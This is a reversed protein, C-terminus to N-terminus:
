FFVFNSILPTLDFSAGAVLGSSGSGGLSPGLVQRGIIASIGKYNGAIGLVANNVTSANAAQGFNEEFVLGAGRNLASIGGSTVIDMWGVEVGLGANPLIMWGNATDVFQAPGVFTPNVGWGTKETTQAFAGSSLLFASAIMLLIMGVKPATTPAAQSAPTPSASAPSPDAGIIGQQVLGQLFHLIDTALAGFLAIFAGWHGPLNLAGADQCGEVIVGLGTMCMTVVKFLSFHIQKM